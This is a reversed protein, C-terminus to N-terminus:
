PSTSALNMTAKGALPLLTSPPHAASIRTWFRGLYLAEAVKMDNSVANIDSSAEEEEPQM